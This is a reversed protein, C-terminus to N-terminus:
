GPANRCARESKTADAFLHADNRLTNKAIALM